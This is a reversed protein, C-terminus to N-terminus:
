GTRRVCGGSMCGYRDIGYTWTDQLAKGQESRGGFLLLQGEHLHLLASMDRKAPSSSSVNAPIQTWQWEVQGVVSCCHEICHSNTCLSCTYAYLSSNPSCAANHWESTQQM